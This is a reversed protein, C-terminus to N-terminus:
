VGFLPACFVCEEALEKERKLGFVAERISYEHSSTASGLESERAQSDGFVKPFFLTQFLIALRNPSKLDSQSHRNDARNIIPLGAKEDPQAEFFGQCGSTPAPFDRHSM